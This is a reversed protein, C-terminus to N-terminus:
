YTNKANEDSRHVRHEEWTGRGIRLQENLPRSTSRRRTERSAYSSCTGHVTATAALVGDPEARRRRRRRYWTTATDSSFRTSVDIPEIEKLRRADVDYWLRRRVSPSSRLVNSYRAPSGNDRPRPSRRCCCSNGRKDVARERTILRCVGSTSIVIRNNNPIKWYYKRRARRGERRWVERSRTKRCQGTRSELLILWLGKPFDLNRKNSYGGGRKERTQMSFQWPM